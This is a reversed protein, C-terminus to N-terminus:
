SARRVGEDASTSVPEHGPVTRAVATAAAPARRPLSDLAAPRGVREPTGLVREREEVWRVIELEGGDHEVLATCSEVWDGDNCYLVGDMDRMEAHHIHGCVVGDYGRKRADETVAHEFSGIYSVANKVRLKLWASLSWYPRGLRRRARNVWTNLQLAFQYARDGLHALWRANRIAIDFRDGHQVLLRRGDETVYDFEDCLEVGSIDLHLWSRRFEDHNGAVYVVRTGREALALVERVVKSHGETWHWSRRLSWGDLIDGVLVLTEFRHCRLFELLLEAQCGRTGLHVDSVFACRVSRADECPGQALSTDPWWARDGRLPNWM